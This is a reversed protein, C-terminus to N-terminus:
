FQLRCFKLTNRTREIRLQLSNSKARRWVLTFLNGVEHPLFTRDKGGPLLLSDGNKRLAFEAKVGGRVISPRTVGKTVKLWDIKGSISDKM